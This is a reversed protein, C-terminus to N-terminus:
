TRVEPPEVAQALIGDLERLHSETRQVELEMLAKLEPDSVLMRMTKAKTLCLTKFAAIEHLDLTEHVGFRNPMVSGLSGGGTM